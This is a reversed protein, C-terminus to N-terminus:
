FTWPAEPLPQRYPHDKWVPFPWGDPSPHPYM